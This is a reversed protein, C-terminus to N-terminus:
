GLARRAEGTGCLSEIGGPVYRGGIRTGFRIEDADALGVQGGGDQPFSIRAERYAEFDKDVVIACDRESDDVGGDRSSGVGVKKISKGVVEILEEQDAGVGPQGESKGRSVQLQGDMAEGDLSVGFVVSDQTVEERGGYKVRLRNKDGFYVGEVRISGGAEM